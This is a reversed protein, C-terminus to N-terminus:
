RGHWASPTYRAELFDLIKLGVEHGEHTKRLDAFTKGLALPFCIADYWSAYFDNPDCEVGLYECLAEDIKDFPVKKKTKKDLLELYAAM